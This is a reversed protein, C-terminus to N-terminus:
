SKQTEKRVNKLVEGMRTFLAYKENDINPETWEPMNELLERVDSIIDVMEPAENQLQKEAFKERIQKDFEEFAVFMPGDKPWPNVDTYIVVDDPHHQNDYSSRTTSEMLAIKGIATVPLLARETSSLAPPCVQMPQNLQQPLLKNLVEKLDAYTEIEHFM